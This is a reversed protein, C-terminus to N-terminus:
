QSDSKKNKALINKENQMIPLVHFFITYIFEFFLIVAFMFKGFLYYDSPLTETYTWIPINVLIVGFIGCALFFVGGLFYTHFSVIGAAICAATGYFLFIIIVLYFIFSGFTPLASLMQKPTFFWIISASLLVIGFLNGLIEATKLENIFDIEFRFKREPHTIKSFYFTIGLIFLGLFFGSVGFPIQKWLWQVGLIIGGLVSIVLLGVVLILGLTGLVSFIEKIKKM